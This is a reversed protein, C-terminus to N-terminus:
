AQKMMRGGGEGDRIVVSEGTKERWGDGGENEWGLVWEVIPCEEDKETIKRKAVGEGRIMM